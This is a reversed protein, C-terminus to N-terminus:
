PAAQSEPESLTRQLVRRLSELDLPKTLYDNFGADRGRDIDDKMADATVAVVPVRSLRAHQRFLTLLEYGNLGPMNIDLLILSPQLRDALDLAGHSDSSTYVQLQPERQLMRTLLKLNVPNDDICLVM